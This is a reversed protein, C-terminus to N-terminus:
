CMATELVPRIRLGQGLDTVLDARKDQKAFQSLSSECSDEEGLLRVEVM